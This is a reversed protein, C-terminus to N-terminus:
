RGERAAAARTWASATAEAHGSSRIAVKGLKMDEPLFFAGSRRGESSCSASSM